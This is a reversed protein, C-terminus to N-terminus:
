AMFVARLKWCAGSDAVAAGSVGDSRYLVLVNKSAGSLYLNDSPKEARSWILDGHAKGPIPSPPTYFADGAPAAARAVPALALTLVVALVVRHSRAM